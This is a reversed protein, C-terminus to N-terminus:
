SLLMLPPRIYYTYWVDEPAEFYDTSEAVIMSQSLLIWGVDEEKCGEVPEYCHESDPDSEWNARIFNVSSGLNGISRLAEKDVEIFYSYCALNFESFPRARDFRPNEIAVAKEAWSQFHARLKEKSAGEM